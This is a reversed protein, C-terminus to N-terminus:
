WATAGSAVEVRLRVKFSPEEDGGCENVDSKNLSHREVKASTHNRILSSILSHSFRVGFETLRWGLMDLGVHNHM